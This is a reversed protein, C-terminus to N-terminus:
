QETFPIVCRYRHTQGVATRTAFGEAVLRQLALRIYKVNGTINDEIYKQSCDPNLLMFMAIKRMYYTPRLEGDSSTPMPTPARLEAAMNLHTADLHFEAIVDGLAHESVHGPRDKAVTVKSVGHKGRGFMDVPLVKYAAGDIGALKHQGGIGWRGQKETDKAVHDILVVAAGKKALRRPLLDYYAAVDSNSNIDLGQLTMAETVGDVVVLTANATAADLHEMLLGTLAEAPRVYRLHYTLLDPDTGLTLLRGVVRSARDEHDIIVVDQGSMIQDRAALLALWTKGCGPEGSFTHIAAPYILCAGDNRPLITPVPDIDVGSMVEGLAVPQWSSQSSKPRGTLHRTASDFQDYTDALIAFPEIAGKLLQKQARQLHETLERIAALERIRDALRPAALPVTATAYLTALYGAGGVLNVNGARELQALVLPASTTGSELREAQLAQWVARHAPRYFDNPSVPLDLIGTVCQSDVLALGLLEQEAGLDHPPEAIDSPQDTWHPAENPIRTYENSM